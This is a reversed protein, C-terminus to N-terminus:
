RTDLVRGGVGPPMYCPIEYISRSGTLDFRGRLYCCIHMIARRHNLRESRERVVCGAAM